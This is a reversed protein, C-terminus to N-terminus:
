ETVGYKEKLETFMEEDLIKAESCGVLEEFFCKEIETFIERAVESQKRYGANYLYEAMEKNPCSECNHMNEDCAVFPMCECLDRALEKIQKNM